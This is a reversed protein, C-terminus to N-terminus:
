SLKIVDQLYYTQYTFGLGAILDNNFHGVAYAAVNRQTLGDRKM